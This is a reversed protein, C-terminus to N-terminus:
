SFIDKRVRERGEKLIDVYKVFNGNTAHSSVSLNGVHNALWKKVFSHIGRLQLIIMSNIDHGLRKEEEDSM